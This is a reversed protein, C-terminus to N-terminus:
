EGELAIRAAGLIELTARDQVYAVADLEDISVDRPVSLRATGAGVAAFRKYARVVHHHDLTRGGNEGRAVATSVRRQTLAVNLDNGETDSVTYALLVAGGSRGRQELSVVALDQKAVADAIAERARDRVSGVFGVRGDVVMQPTYVRRDPLAAAYARQRKSYDADAFRDPWGLRDWYDVHFALPIVGAQAALEGLLRDAPPCSSCGESTFLEVVATSPLSEGAAPAAALALFLFVPIM